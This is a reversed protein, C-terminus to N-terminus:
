SDVARVGDPAAAQVAAHLTETRPPLCLDDKCTQYTVRATVDHRKADARAVAVNQGWTVGGEYIDYLGKYHHPPLVLGGVLSVEPPLQFKVQTEIMGHPANRGTPAYIYWGDRIAFRVQLETQGDREATELAVRVPPTAPQAAATGAPRGESAPKAATNQDPNRGLMVYVRGQHRMTLWYAKGDKYLRGINDEWYKINFALHEEAEEESMGREIMRALGISEATPKPRPPYLGPDKGASEVKTVDEWEWSLEDSYEGGNVTAVSAGIILDQVGDRNWDAVYVRPGSGPLAKAGDATKLLDVGPHFRHGASTKVGQFFTVAHSAPHRYSGTVLLDQVGDGNWDTVLPSAKGDGDPPPLVDSPLDEEPKNLVRLPEGNVDLLLRREAFSPSHRGGINESIRLGLGGGVILDLDGDDDLDGFDASSYVWYMFTGIDGPEGEYDGFAPQGNSAPDGEQPLPVGPLFGNEAGRFWTVDGPHYQGTIMDRRGDADLDHFYPTFGICCWQPVELITGETDRAWEFAAGFKPNADTGINRYVRITSGDAGMPFDGSNTEFEGVLLDRKGDGDWDWLAPAALGHKETLVPKDGAMVLFPQELRPAGPINAGVINPFSMEDAGAAFAIAAVGLRALYQAPKNM